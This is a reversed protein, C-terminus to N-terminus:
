TGPPVTRRPRDLSVMQCTLRVLLVHNLRWCNSFLVNERCESGPILIGFPIEKKLVQRITPLTIWNPEESYDKSPSISFKFPSISILWMPRRSWRLLWRATRSPHLKSNRWPMREVSLFHYCFLFWFLGRWRSDSAFNSSTTQLCLLISPPFLRSFTIILKMKEAESQWSLRCDPLFITSPHAFSLSQHKTTSYLPFFTHNPASSHVPRFDLFGWFAKLQSEGLWFLSHAVFIIPPATACLSYLVFTQLYSSLESM